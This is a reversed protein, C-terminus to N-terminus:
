VCRYALYFKVSSRLLQWRYQADPRITRGPRLPSLNPLPQSDRSRCGHVVVMDADDGGTDPTEM